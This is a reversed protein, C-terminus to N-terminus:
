GMPGMNKRLYDQWVRCAYQQNRVEFRELTSVTFKKEKEKLLTRSM